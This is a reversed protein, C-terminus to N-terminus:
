VRLPTINPPDSSSTALDRPRHGRVHFAPVPIRIPNGATLDGSGLQAAFSFQLLASDHGSQCCRYSVPQPVPAPSHQHCGAAPPQAAIMQSADQGAISLVVLAGLLVASLM